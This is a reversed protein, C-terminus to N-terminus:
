NGNLNGHMVLRVNIIKLVAESEWIILFMGVNEHSAVKAVQM